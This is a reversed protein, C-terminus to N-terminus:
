RRRLRQTLVETVRSAATRVPNPPPPRLRTVPAPVPELAPTPQEFPVLTGALAHAVAPVDARALRVTALCRGDQWISLVVRDAEPHSSIRLIRGAVDRGVVIDGLTPLPTVTQGM